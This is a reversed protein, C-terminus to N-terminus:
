ANPMSDKWAEERRLQEALQKVVEQEILDPLPTNSALLEQETFQVKQGEWEVTILNAIKELKFKTTDAM